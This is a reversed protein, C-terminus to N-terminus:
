LSKACMCAYVTYLLLTRLSGCVKPAEIVRHGVQMVAPMEASPVWCGRPGVTLIPIPQAPALLPCNFFIYPFFVSRPCSLKVNVDNLDHGQFRCGPRSGGTGVCSVLM